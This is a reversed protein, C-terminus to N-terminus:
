KDQSSKKRMEGIESIFESQLATLQTKLKKEVTETANIESKYHKLQSKLKQIEIKLEDEIKVKETKLERNKSVESQTARMKKKGKSIEKELNLVRTILDDREKKISILEDFSQNRLSDMKKHLKKVEEYNKNKCLEKKIRENEDVVMELKEQSNKIKTTYNDQIEFMQARFNEKIKHIEENREQQQKQMFDSM